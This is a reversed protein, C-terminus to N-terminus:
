ELESTLGAHGRVLFVMQVKGEAIVKDSGSVMAKRSVKNGTYTDIYEAKDYTTVPSDEWGWPESALQQM